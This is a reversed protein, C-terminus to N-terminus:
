DNADIIDRGDVPPRSKKMQPVYTNHQHLELKETVHPESNTGLRVFDIVIQAAAQPNMGTIRANGTAIDVMSQMIAPLGNLAITMAMDAREDRITAISAAFKGDTIWRRVTDYNYGLAECAETLPAKTNAIRYNFVDLLIQGIIQDDMLQLEQSKEM